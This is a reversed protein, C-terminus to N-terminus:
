KVYFLESLYLFVYRSVDPVNELLKNDMNKNEQIVGLFVLLSFCFHLVVYIFFQYELCKFCSHKNTRESFSHLSNIVFVILILKLADVSLLM